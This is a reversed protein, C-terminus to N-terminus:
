WQNRFKLTGWFWRSFKNFCWSNHESKLSESKRPRPYPRHIQMELMAWTINISAPLLWVQFSALIERWERIRHSCWCAMQLFECSFMHWHWVSKLIAFHFFWLIFFVSIHSCPFSQTTKHRWFIKKLTPWNVLM